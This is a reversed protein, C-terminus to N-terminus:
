RATDSTDAWRRRDREPLHSLAARGAAYGARRYDTIMRGAVCVVFREAFGTIAAMGPKIMIVARDPRM